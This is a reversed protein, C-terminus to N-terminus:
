GRAAQLACTQSRASPLRLRIPITFKPTRKRSLLHGGRVGRASLVPPAPSPECPSGTPVSEWSVSIGAPMGGDEAPSRPFQPLRPPRQLTEPRPPLPVAEQLPLLQGDWWHETPVLSPPSPCCGQCGRSRPAALTRPRAPAAPGGGPAGQASRGRHPAPRPPM